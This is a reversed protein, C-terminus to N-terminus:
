KKMARYWFFGLGIIGIIIVVANAIFTDSICMQM